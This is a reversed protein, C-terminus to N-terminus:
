PRVAPAIGLQARLEDLQDLINRGEEEQHFDNYGDNYRDYYRRYRHLQKIYEDIIPSLEDAKFKVPLYKYEGRLELANIMENWSAVISNHWLACDYNEWQTKDLM